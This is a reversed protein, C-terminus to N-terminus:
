KVEQLMRVTHKYPKNVVKDVMHLTRISKDYLSAVKLFKDLDKDPIDLVLLNSGGEVNIAVKM